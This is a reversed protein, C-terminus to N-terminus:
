YNQSISFGDKIKSFRYYKDQQWFSEDFVEKYIDFFKNYALTMFAREAKNPRLEKKGV